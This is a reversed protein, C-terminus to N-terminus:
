FLKKHYLQITKLREKAIANYFNFHRPGAGEHWKRLRDELEVLEQQLLEADKKPIVAHQIYNMRGLLHYPYEKMFRQFIEEGREPNGGLMKPRSLEYQAYFLACAGLEISPSRHCVWDFLAKVKPLQAVLRVDHKLLNMKAALGQAFYIIAIEDESILGKDFESALEDAKLNKWNLKRQELYIEAHFIAKDYLSLARQEHYKSSQLIQEELALTEFVAYAYGTYSKILTRRLRKNQPDQSLMTELLQINSPAAERFWQWDREELLAKSGEEFLPGQTRLAMQSFSCSQALLLSLSVLFTKM